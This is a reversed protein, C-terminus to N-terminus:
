IIEQLITQAWANVPSYTKLLKGDSVRFLLKPFANDISNDYVYLRDVIHAAQSCHVISKAYRSIIKSIPVDHGGEMVRHAIRATNIVPHDTGVFFLRTFYGAERAMSIFELKDPSSLVTEFLLSERNAICKNRLNSAYIVAKKVAKPSNWDGFKENAIIDPNIYVCGEVWEHKLIKDTVSTKGSGNPGAIILLKPKTDM